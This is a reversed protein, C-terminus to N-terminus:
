LTKKLIRIRFYESMFIVASVTVCKVNRFFVRRGGTLIRWLWCCGIRHIWEPTDAVRGSHFDFAAGVPLLVSANVEDKHAACWKEQKPCGLAVWFFDCVPADKPPVRPDLAFEPAYTGVIRVGPYREEMKKKLDVLTEEDSGYFFHRWGRSVGYELAAPFLKPGILRGPKNDEGYLRALLDTVIGDACVADAIRYTERLALDNRWARSLGNGDCFCVVRRRGDRRWTEMENLFEKYSARVVDWYRVRVKNLM